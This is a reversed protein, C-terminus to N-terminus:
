SRSISGSCTFNTPLIGMGEGGNPDGDPHLVLNDATNRHLCHVGVLDLCRRARFLHCANCAIFDTVFAPDLPPHAFPTSSCDKQRFVFFTLTIQVGVLEIKCEKRAAAQVFSRSIRRYAGRSTHELPPAYGEPPFLMMYLRRCSEHIGAVMSALPYMSLYERTEDIQPVLFAPFCIALEHIKFCSTLIDIRESGSRSEPRVCNQSAQTRDTREISPFKFMGLCRQKEEKICKPIM